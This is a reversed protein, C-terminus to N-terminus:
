VGHQSSADKKSLYEQNIILQLGFMVILQWVNMMNFYNDISDDNHIFSILILIGITIIIIWLTTKTKTNRFLSKNLLLTLLPAILFGSILFALDTYFWTGIHIDNTLGISEIGKLFLGWGFYGVFFSFYSFIISLVTGKISDTYRKYNSLSVILSFILPYLFLSSESLFLILVSIFPSLVIKLILKIKGM